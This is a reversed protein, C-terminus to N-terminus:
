DSSLQEILATELDSLGSSLQRERHGRWHESARDQLQLGADSFGKLMVAAHTGSVKDRTHGIRAISLGAQQWFRLLEVTLGYSTGIWDYGDKRMQQEISCLMALGIGQRQLGPAVAIRMVRLGCSQGASSLGSHALLTQPILHGKPRRKGAEIAVALSPEINGEEALLATTVLVESGTQTTLFGGWVQLNPSDLLIRLDGPTTRYHALILLGFLEGLLISDALLQDRDIRRYHIASSDMKDTCSFEADLLLAKYTFQELPDGEAWRIPQSLKLSIWDPSLQDLGKRFRVAFGQGTGEYGHITSSFLAGPYHRLMQKLVPAPIAAAEDVLLLDAQPQEQLLQDSLIFRIRGVACEIVGARIECSYEQEELLRQALQFLPQVAARSPATVVINRHGQLLLESAIIGLSATKGRGRDATMVIARSRDKEFEALVCKVLAQQDMSRFPEVPDDIESCNALVPLMPLPKGQEILTLYQDDLICTRLHRIFRRGVDSSHYPLTAISLYEPDIFDPWQELPPTVLILIGGAIVIGSVQGFANPNFGSWCDFVVLDREQGLVQHAQKGSIAKTSEPPMLGVTSDGIWLQEGSLESHSLLQEAWGQEGSIVVLQRWASGTQSQRLQRIFQCTSEIGPM